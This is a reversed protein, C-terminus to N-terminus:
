NFVARYIIDIISNVLAYEQLPTFKCSGIDDFCSFLGSNWDRLVQSQQVVVTTGPQATVVQAM